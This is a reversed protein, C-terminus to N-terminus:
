QVQPSEPKKIDVYTKFINAVYDKLKDKYRLLQMEQGILSDMDLNDKM